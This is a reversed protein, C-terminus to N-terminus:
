STLHIDKRQNSLSTAYHTCITVYIYKWIWLVVGEIFIKLNMFIMISTKLWTFM